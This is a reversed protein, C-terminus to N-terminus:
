RPEIQYLPPESLNSPFPNATSNELADWIQYSGYLLVNATMILVGFGKDPGLASFINNLLNGM